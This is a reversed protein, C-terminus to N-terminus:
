FNSGACTELMVQEDEPPTACRCMTYHMLVIGNRTCGFSMVPVCYVMHQEHLAEQLHVHLARFM